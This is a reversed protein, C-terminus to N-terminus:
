KKTRSVRNHYRPLSIKQPPTEYPQFDVLGNSSTRGLSPREATLTVPRPRMMTRYLGRSNAIIPRSCMWTVAEKNVKLNLRMWKYNVDGRKHM